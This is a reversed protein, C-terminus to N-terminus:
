LKKKRNQATLSLTIKVFFIFGYMSHTIRFRKRTSLYNNQQLNVPIINNKQLYIVFFTIMIIDSVLFHGLTSEIILVAKMFVLRNYCLLRLAKEFFRLALNALSENVNEANNTALTFNWYRHYRYYLM